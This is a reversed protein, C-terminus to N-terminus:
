WGKAVGGRCAPAQSAACSAPEWFYVTMTQGWAVVTGPATGQRWITSPQAADPRGPDFAPQYTQAFMASVKPFPEDPGAGCDGCGYFGIMDPMAFHTDRVTWRFGRSTRTKGDDATIEVNFVDSNIADDAQTKSVADHAIVGVITTGDLSLGAPLGKATVTVQDGDADSVTLPLSITAQEDTTQDAFPAVVPARNAAATAASVKCWPTSVGSMTAVKSAMQQASNWWLYEVVAYYGDKLNTFSRRGQGDTYTRPTSYSAWRVDAVDNTRGLTVLGSPTASAYWWGGEEARTWADGNWRLLLPNWFVWEKDGTRPSAAAPVTANVTGASCTAPQQTFTGPALQPGTTTGPLKAFLQTRAADLRGAAETSKDLVSRGVKTYDALNSANMAPFLGKATSRATAAHGNDSLWKLVEYDERGDRLRKLRISELPIHTTGGIRDPTGPYFLTGDGNNGYSYQCNTPKVGACTNWAQSLDQFGEFYYDGTVDFNFAQWGLSRAQSPPQDIIVSPMGEWLKEHVTAADACGASDCANYAWVRNGAQAQLFSDYSPRTSAGGAPQLAGVLPIMTDIAKASEYGQARAWDVNDKSNTHAIRLPGPDPVTPTADWVQRAQKFGNECLKTWNDASRGTEDCYFRLRDAWGGQVGAQKWAGIEGAGWGPVLVDTVSAGALRTPATGKMFPTAWQDFKAKASPDSKGPWAIPYRNDLAARQYRAYLEWDGGPLGGCTAGHPGCLKGLTVSMGGHLSSTSPLAVDAVRLSVAVSENLGNASNVKFSGTYTGAPADTPVLVDIWAVRNEGRPIDVPFANRDQGDFVDREPILADPIRCQSTCVTAFSTRAPMTEPWLEGDSATTVTYYDERHVVVNNAPITSGQPGTLAQDLAVTVGNLADATATIAIQFSEFENKAARLDITSSASPKDEPRIMVLSHMASVTGPAAQAEAPPTAVNILATAGISGAMAVSLWKRSRNPRNRKTLM